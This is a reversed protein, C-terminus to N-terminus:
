PTSALGTLPPAARATFRTLPISRLSLPADGAPTRRRVGRPPHRAGSGVVPGHEPGVTEERGDTWEEDAPQSHTGSTYHCRLMSHLGGRPHVMASGDPTAWRTSHASPRWETVSALSWEVSHAGGHVRHVRSPAWETRPAPSPHHAGRTPRPPPPRRVSGPLRGSRPHVGGGAGTRTPTASAWRRAIAMSTEGQGPSRTLSSGPQRPPRDLPGRVQTRNMPTSWSHAGNDPVAASAATCNTASRQGM